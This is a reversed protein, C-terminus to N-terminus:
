LQAPPGLRLALTEVPTAIFDPESVVQQQDLLAVAAMHQIHALLQTAGRTELQAAVTHAALALQLQFLLVL